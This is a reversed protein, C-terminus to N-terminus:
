AARMSVSYCRSCWKRRFIAIPLIGVPKAYRFEYGVPYILIWVRGWVRGYYSIIKMGMGTHTFPYGRTIWVWMNKNFFTFIKLMEVLIIIFLKV